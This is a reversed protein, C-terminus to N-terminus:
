SFLKKLNEINPEISDPIKLMSQVANLNKLGSGTLLVVNKSKNDLKQNHYYNLLGAFSTAAAPEAFIGTNKSLISSAKLISQDSVTIYEGNYKQIFYKVMNFNRPIDVSISDAITDSKKIKFNKHNLNRTLNDSGESQVAVIIPIKHIIKLNLLDEFGKYIGSIIVGDGVPVFIRDPITKNLQDFIEFSVTKKGEITLPNYATNRNYWGFEKTAKISLEFADDYTGKVPIITAGYMLIQTLKALPAKEPVMIIAKQKQAACIGALSSGANGTSATVIPNLKNEKAYASILASARDKFSFTPNQSDDKLFLQFPLKKNDLENCEYLPTNGVKLRPLSATSRIPLIQLFNEEKLDGFLVNKKIHDFFNYVIRLVGKPPNLDNNEKSCKPCLYITESANYQKGCDICEYIFKETTTKQKM